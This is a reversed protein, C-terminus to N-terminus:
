KKLKEQVDLLSEQLADEPDTQEHAIKMIKLNGTLVRCLQEHSFTLGENVEHSSIRGESV